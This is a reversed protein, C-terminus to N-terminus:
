NLIIKLRTLDDNWLHEESKNSLFEIKDIIKKQQEILESIKEESWHFIPINLLSDIHIYNNDQLRKRIKDKTQRFVIEPTNIVEQIFRIKEEIIQLQEKLKQLTFEKRKKYIHLRETYYYDLIDEISNFKYIHSQEMEYKHIYLYMNNMSIKSSLKFLKEIDSTSCYIKSLLIEFHVDEDTSKDVYSSINGLEIHHELLEKFTQTWLGIPLETITLRNTKEDYEYNGNINFKNHDIEVIKGKFGRYYPIWKKKFAESNGNNREILVDCLELPNFPPINTSYGTGIGDVGNVLVMPIIPYYVRPEIQKGDDELKELLPDDDSNFIELTWKQLYTYIYRSQANDKSTLRTGFQGKPFLLPLNNKGVFSQALNVITQELSVEGHHYSTFESVFSALQAVKIEKPNKHILGYIVKRQSPKLGDMINPISRINDYNSFHKLERHIFESLIISKKQKNSSDSSYEITDHPDYTGLWEKRSNARDKSFAMLISDESDKSEKSDKSEWKYEITIDKLKKFYEKFEKGTSTGLGKYYKYEWKEGIHQEKFKEFEKLTYFSITQQNRFGKIIPTIITKVFGDIQLLSPWFYHLFNLLLGKIHSGDHDADTTIAISGYRLEKLNEKTYVKGQQLGLITKLNKVEENNTIKDISCDRVNLFKGRLPFIGFTERFSSGLVSLGSMVSAKASDGETLILTCKLSNRTGALFADDLKPIGKLINKKAGDTKKIAQNTNTKIHEVMRDIFNLEDIPQYKTFKEILKEDIDNLVCTSGFQTSKTTLEEKTQSTFSPNEIVSDVFLWINDKIQNTRFTKGKTKTHKSLIQKLRDIIQNLIYDVHKGGKMTWIGNVFSIQNYERNPSLVIGIKWRETETYFGKYGKYVDTNFYLESYKALTKIKLKVSNLYINLDSPTTATADYVRRELLKYIDDTIGEILGFREYDPLFTIKTYPKSTYKTIKPKQVESNNNLIKQIYKLQRKSDITEIIFSKSFICTLKSGYGNKGGTTKKENQNYNTSTLLHSFLLEPIYIQKEEDHEDYLCIDIGEGDNYISIESQGHSINVKINKVSNDRQRHDLANVLIEDFIKYFGPVYNIKKKEFNDSDTKIFMEESHFEISGIYTDPLKYIHEKHEMKQYKQQEM